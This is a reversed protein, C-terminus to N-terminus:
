NKKYIYLNIYPTIKGVAYLKRSAKKCIESVHYDFFPKNDLQIDLLKKRKYNRNSFKKIKIADNYNKSVLLHFKDPNSKM